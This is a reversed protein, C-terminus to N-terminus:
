QGRGAAEPERARDTGTRGRELSAVLRELREAAEPIRGARVQLDIARLEAAIRSSGLLRQASPHALLADLRTVGRELRVLPDALAARRRERYAELDVV